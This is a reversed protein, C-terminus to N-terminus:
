NDKFEEAEQPMLGVESLRTLKKVEKNSKIKHVKCQVFAVYAIKKNFGTEKWIVVDYPSRSAASRLAGYGAQRFIQVVEREFNIGKGHTM